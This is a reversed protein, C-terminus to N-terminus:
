KARVELDLAQQLTGKDVLPLDSGKREITSRANKDYERADISKRIETLFTDGLQTLAEKKSMGESMQSSLQAIVKKLKPQRTDFTQRIFPREPITSTGFENYMGIEVIEPDVSGPLGVVVHDFRSDKLEEVLDDLGLDKDVIDITVRAM